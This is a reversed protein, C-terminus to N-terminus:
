AWFLIWVFPQRVSNRSVDSLWIRSLVCKLTRLLLLVFKTRSIKRHPPCKNFYTTVYNRRQGNSMFKVILRKHRCQLNSCWVINIECCAVYLGVLWLNRHENLSLQWIVFHNNVAVWICKVRRTVTESSVHFVTYGLKGISIAVQLKVGIAIFSCVIDANFKGSREKSNCSNMWLSSWCLV